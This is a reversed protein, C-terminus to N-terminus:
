ANGEHSYRMDSQKGTLVLYAFKCAERAEDETMVTPETTYELRGGPTNIAIFLKKKSSDLEHVGFEVKGM